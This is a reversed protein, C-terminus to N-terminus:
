SRDRRGRQARGGTITALAIVLAVALVIAGTLFARDAGATLAHRIIAVPTRPDAFSAGPDAASVSAAIASWALTGLVALGTAGGMQRVMSYVGSAAGTDEPPVRDLASAILPVPLLGLGAYGFYTWGILWVVSSSHEGVRSMGIMGITAVALAGVVLAKRGTKPLIRSAAPGGATLLLAPLIYLAATNLASYGWVRQLFLTLFFFVGFMATNVCIVILYAGSRSRQALLRLPVLPHATRTETIIFAVLLLTGLVLSGAVAPDAWHSVGNSGTAGSILAYVFLTVAGTGTVTGLLDFRPPRGPQRGSEALVRPALAAVALGIPVNVFFVSRWTVYTTLLGGALIGIAGGGTSIGAYVGLARTRERDGPFTTAILSLAAPSAFAAGVGQIARAALLSWQTVAFGGLLSALTFVLIGAVFVRRRGLADGARGGLLLLGGYTLSYGTVVWELSSGSFRLAAQIHPLAVNVITTDLIVMLQGASIVWIAAQSPRAQQGTAAVAKGPGRLM